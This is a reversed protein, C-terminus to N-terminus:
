QMRNIFITGMTASIQLLPGGGNVKGEAVIQRGQRRVSVTPFQCLIRRMNDALDNQARIDVGVNSPIMVTIDGNGTALFSDALKAGFLTAMINGLSTSVRMPGAINTVRIGGSGSECQVGGAAGVQVPGAMNRATVIGAAHDVVIPGGVTGAAVGAGARIIHIGGGGTQARAPGKIETALIDGGQTELICEGRVTGVTIKGAGSNCRLSGGVAGVEVDGGGTILKCDGRIRDIHMEGAGTEATLIGDVGGAEIAGDSTKIGAFDLRPAKVVVTTIFPGDPTTIVTTDGLKQPRVQFREMVRRAEAATRARVSLRVSYSITGQSLGAHLTVPGHAIIRLRRASPASGFFDHEWRGGNQRLGLPQALALLPILAVIPKLSFHARRLM